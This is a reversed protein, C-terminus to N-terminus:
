RKGNGLIFLDKAKMAVTRIICTLFYQGHICSGAVHKVASQCTCAVLEVPINKHAVAHPNKM